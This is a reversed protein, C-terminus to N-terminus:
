AELALGRSRSRGISGLEGKALSAANFSCSAPRLSYCGVVSRWRISLHSHCARTTFARVEAASSTSDPWTRILPVRSVDGPWAILIPSTM